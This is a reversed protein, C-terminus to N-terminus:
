PRHGASRRWRRKWRGTRRGKGSAAPGLVGGERRGASCRGCACGQIIAAPRSDSQWYSTGGHLRLSRWCRRMCRRHAHFRGHRCRSRACSRRSELGPPPPARVVESRAQNASMQRGPRYFRLWLLLACAARPPANGSRSDQDRLRFHRCCGAADRPGTIEWAQPWNAISTLPRRPGGGPDDRVMSSSGHKSDMQKM